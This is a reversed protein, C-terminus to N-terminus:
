LQVKFPACAAECPLVGERPEGFAEYALRANRVYEKLQFPDLSHPEDPNDHKTSFLKTHVELIKAGHSVALAGTLVNASHDSFGDLEYDGITSLHLHSMQTPYASICHLLYTSPPMRKMALLEKETMIGTSIILPKGTEQCARSLSFDNAEFSSIKLVDAFTEAIDLDQEDYVSLVLDLGVDHARQRLEPLWGIPLQYKAYALRLPEARRRTSLRTADYLQFKVADAGARAAIDIAVIALSHNREHTAGVEAIIYPTRKFSHPM